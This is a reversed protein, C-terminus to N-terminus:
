YEFKVKSGESTAEVNLHTPIREKLEEVHSIIGVIRGDNKLDVLCEIAADLSEPDLTGFGEDIFMTDLQIGGAYGQVVDALGLALALSAKFGEGGSLTTVDRKKGTYNDLVELELGQQKRADGVEEKRFLEYQNSTMETLRLNAAVIIDEFYAALVYRELSMRRPNDGSVQISLSGIIGYKEEQHSIKESYQLVDTLINKNTEVKSYIVKINEDKIKKNNKIDSIQKELDVLDTKSLTKTEEYLRERDKTATLVDNEYLRINENMRVMDDEPMKAEKYQKGDKFGLEFVKNKFDNLTSEREKTVIDFEQQKTEIVAKYSDIDEKAKEYLQKSNELAKKLEDLIQTINEKESEVEQLTKKEGKFDKLLISIESEIGKIDIELEQLQKSKAEKLKVLEIQKLKVEEKEDTKVQELAVKKGLTGLQNKLNSIKETMVTNEDVVYAKIDDISMSESIDFLKKAMPYITNKDIHQILEHYKKVSSLAEENQQQKEYYDKKCDDVIQESIDTQEVSALQPHNTSGCVPCPMGFELDKALIGAKNRKLLEEKNEYDNKADIYQKNIIEYSLINEKHKDNYDCREVISTNLIEISDILKELEKMQISLEAKMEKSKRIQSLEKELNEENSKINELKEDVQLIENSVVTKKSQEDVLVKNLAEYQSVKKILEEINSLQSNYKMKIDEKKLEIEYENKAQVYRTEKDKGEKSLKEIDEHLRNYRKNSIIYQEELVAAVLAKQARLVKDKQELIESEKNKLNQIQKNVSELSDLKKNNEIGVVLEKNLNEIQKNFEDIQKELSYYYANDSEISTKFKNIVEQINLDKSGLLSVLEESEGCDFSRIRKDRIVQIEKIEQKLHNAEEGIKNQILSFIETGFIKRFITEKQTSPAELLKKFEGQPIMVLQKFQAPTIGLIKEVEDTVAQYGTLLKGDPFTLSASATSVTTGEGRSKAKLYQPSRVIKYDKDRISFILEVETPTNIGAHDSRLSKGDRSSGSADGYLAFNIADFITTKGAGTKGVIVFINRDSLNNEFDLIQKEVYRGFGEIILSKIKM